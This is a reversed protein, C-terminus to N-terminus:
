RPVPVSGCIKMQDIPQHGCAIACLRLATCVWAIQAGCPWFRAQAVDTGVTASANAGSVHSAPGTTEYLMAASSIGASAAHVAYRRQRWRVRENHGDTTPPYM